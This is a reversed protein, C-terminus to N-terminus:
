PTIVNREDWRSLRFNALCPTDPIAISLYDTRFPRRFCEAAIENSCKWRGKRSAIRQIRNGAVEYSALKRRRKAVFFIKDLFIVGAAAAHPLAALRGVLIPPVPSGGTGDPWQGDPVHLVNDSAFSARFLGRAGKGM